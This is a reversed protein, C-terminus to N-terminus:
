ALREVITVLGNLMHFQQEWLFRRLPGNVNLLKHCFVAPFTYLGKHILNFPSLVSDIGLHPPFIFKGKMSLKVMLLVDSECTLKDLILNTCAAHGGLQIEMKIHILFRTLLLGVAM